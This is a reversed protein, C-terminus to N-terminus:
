KDRPNVVEIVIKNDGESGDRMGENGMMLKNKAWFIGKGENAVINEGLDNFMVQIEKITDNLPHDEKKMVEYFYGRSYFDFKKRRMWHNTFYGITPIMREPISVIKYSATVKKLNDICDDCYAYALDLLKDKDIQKHKNM